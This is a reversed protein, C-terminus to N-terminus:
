YNPKKGLHSDFFKIIKQHLEATEPLDPNYHFVHDLGEWIHLDTKVGLKSLQNHTVVVSSMAFDRTSSALFSPPFKSLYHDSQSPTVEPSDLDVGEYYRIKLEKTLNMGVTANLIAGAISISDGIDIKTTGGAIMGIAGPLPLGLQQLRVITQATLMAGASSGYIGINESKYDELLAKYVAVVDETAAPFRYEPAMRYDVSIVKIKGLAAVPISELQSNTRSGSEFSGGHLNILVRPKNKLDIIDNPVFTETTVGCIPLTTVNVDYSNRLSNYPQGEYFNEREFTRPDTNEKPPAANISKETLTSQYARYHKLAARTEVSVLMSDKLEFAPVHICYEDKLQSCENKKVNM